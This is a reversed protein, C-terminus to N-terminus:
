NAVEVYGVVSGKEGIRCLMAARCHIGAALDLYIHAEPTVDDDSPLCVLSHPFSMANSCIGYSWLRCDVEDCQVLEAIL